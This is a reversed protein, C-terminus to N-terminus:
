KVPIINLDVSGIGRVLARDTFQWITWNQWNPRPTDYNAVWIPYNLTIKDSLINNLYYPNAYVMPRRGYHREIIELWELIRSNIDECSEGDTKEIDLIPPFDDPKLEGVQDIFNQAQSLATKGPRFFHYAGRKYGSENAAKWRSKFRWDRFNEGESAKMIVYDINVEKISNKKRWVTRGREDLYIKLNDWFVLPQHHSIDIGYSWEGKPLQTGQTMTSVQEKILSLSLPSGLYERTMRDAYRYGGYLCFALATFISTWKIFRHHRM